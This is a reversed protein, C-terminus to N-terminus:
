VENTLRRRVCDALSVRLRSLLQHVADVSSGLRSAIVGASQGAEYKLALAQRAREPLKELCIRLAAARVSTDGNDSRDFAERVADVAEPPLAVPKRAEARWCQKIKHSAVGRAWAGFSREQDFTAFSQWLSMATEQFIDERLQGDRVLSGIFGRLDREHALLLKLFDAPHESM